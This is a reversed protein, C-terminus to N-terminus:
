ECLVPFDSTKPFRGVPDFTISRRLEFISLENYKRGNNQSEIMKLREAPSTIVRRSTMRNYAVPPTLTIPHLHQFSGALSSSKKM